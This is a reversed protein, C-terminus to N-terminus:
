DVGNVQTVGVDAFTIEHNHQDSAQNDFTNNATTNYGQEFTNNTGLQVFSPFVGTGTSQADVWNFTAGNRTGTNNPGPPATPGTLNIITAQALTGWAMLVAALLLKKEM